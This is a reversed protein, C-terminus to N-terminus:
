SNRFGYVRITGGTMTEGSKSITFGTASATSVLLHNFTAHGNSAQSTNNATKRVANFPNFVQMEIMTQTSVALNASVTWVTAAAAGFGTQAGAGWSGFSGGSYYNASTIGNLQILHSATGNSSDNEIIIKYNNYNASFANAVIISTNSTGITVVGGSATASTGGVSTVTCTTILELAPPYTSGVLTVWASGTYSQLVNTDDLYCTMGEALTPEGAGGFAADRAAENAFRMISQDMLYGNVQAATLKSFATFLKAGLGAM